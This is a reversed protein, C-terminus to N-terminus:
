RRHLGSRTDSHSTTGRAGRLECGRPCGVRPLEGNAQQRLVRRQLRAQGLVVLVNRVGVGLRELGLVRAEVRAQRLLLEAQLEAAELLREVLRHLAQKLKLLARVPLASRRYVLQMENLHRHRHM